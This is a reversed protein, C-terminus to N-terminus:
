FGLDGWFIVLFVCQNKFADFKSIHNRGLVCLRSNVSLLPGEKAMQLVNSVAAVRVWLTYFLVLGLGMKTRSYCIM